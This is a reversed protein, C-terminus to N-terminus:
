CPDSKHVLFTVSNENVDALYLPFRGKHKATTENIMMLSLELHNWTLQTIRM